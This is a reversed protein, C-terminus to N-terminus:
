MCSSEMRTIKKKGELIHKQNYDLCQKQYNKQRAQQWSDSEPKYTHVANLVTPLDDLSNISVM